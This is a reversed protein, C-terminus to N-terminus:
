TEKYSLNFKIGFYIVNYLIHCFKNYKNENHGGKDSYNLYEQYLKM